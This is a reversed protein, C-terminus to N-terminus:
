DSPGTRPSRQQCYQHQLAEGGDDCSCCVRSSNQWGSAEEEGGGEQVEGEEAAEESGAEPPDEPQQQQQPQQQHYAALDADDPHSSPGAGQESQQLFDAPDQIAASCDHTSPHQAYGHPSSAPLGNQEPQLHGLDAQPQEPVEEDDEFSLFDPAHSEGRDHFRPSRSSRNGWHLAGDVDEAQGRSTVISISMSDGIGDGTYHHYPDGAEQPVM